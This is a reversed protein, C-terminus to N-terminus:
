GSQTDAEPVFARGERGMWISASPQQPDYRVFAQEGVRYSEADVRELYGSEGEHVRGTPDRYEYRIKWLYRGNLRTFTREVAVVRAQTTVGSAQLREELQQAALGQSAYIGGVTTFALGLGFPVILFVLTTRQRPPRSRFVLGLVVGAILAVVGITAFIAGFWIDFHKVADV